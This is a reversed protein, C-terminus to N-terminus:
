RSSQHGRTGSRTYPPRPTQRGPITLSLSRMSMISQCWRFPEGEVLGMVTGDTLQASILIDIARCFVKWDNENSGCVIMADTALIIEQVVWM